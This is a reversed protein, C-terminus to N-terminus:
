LSKSYSGPSSSVLVEQIKTSHAACRGFSIEDMLDVFGQSREAEEQSRLAKCDYVLKPSPLIEGWDIAEAWLCHAKPYLRASSRFAVRLNSALRQAAEGLM